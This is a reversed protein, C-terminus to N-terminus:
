GRPSLKRAQRPGPRQHTGKEAAGRHGARHSPPPETSRPRSQEAARTRAQRGQSKGERAYVGKKNQKSVSTTNPKLRFVSSCGAQDACLM